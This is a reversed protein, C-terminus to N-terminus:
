SPIDLITVGERTISDRKDVLASADHDLMVTVDPHIRLFSAPCESTVPGEIMAQIVRAKHSGTAVLIIARANMIDKIGLTYAYRPMDQGLPFHRANQALTEQSLRVRRTTSELPTGPENFGIHGNNGIGLLQIDPVRSTALGDKDPFFTQEFPIGVHDFLHRRMFAKYSEPDLADLGEYEDLNITTIRSWDTGNDQHDLVLHRYIDVPTSGTPLGLCADPKAKILSSIVDSALHGIRESSSILVRM